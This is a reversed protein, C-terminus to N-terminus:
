NVKINPNKDMFGDIAKQYVKLEAPNGWAQMTLQISKGNGSSTKGSSTSNNSCGIVIFMVLLIWIGSKIPNSIKM